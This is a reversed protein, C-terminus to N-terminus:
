HGWGRFIPALIAGNGLRVFYLYSIACLYNPALDSEAPVSGSYIYTERSHRNHLIFCAARLFFCFVNRGALPEGGVVHGAAFPPVLPLWEAFVASRAPLNSPTSQISFLVM